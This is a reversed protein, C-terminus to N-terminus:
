PVYSTHLASREKRNVRVTPQNTPLAQQGKSCLRVLHCLVRLLHLGCFKISVFNLQILIVQAIWDWNNCLCSIQVAFGTSFFLFYRVHYPTTGFELIAFAGLEVTRCFLQVPVFVGSPKAGDPLAELSTRGVTREDSRFDATLEGIRSEFRHCSRSALCPEIISYDPNADNKM